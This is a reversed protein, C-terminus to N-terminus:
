LRIFWFPEYVYQRIPRGVIGTYFWGSLWLAILIPLILNFIIELIAFVLVLSFPMHNRHKSFPPKVNINTTQEYKKTEFVM